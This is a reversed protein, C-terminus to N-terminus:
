REPSNLAGTISRILSRPLVKSSSVFMRNLLGDVMLVKGSLMAEIGRQACAQSDAFFIRKMRSSSMKAREFFETRTPGPCLTTVTVGTGKLESSLAESFSLVYAKSAYYGAMWPGPQFAATSAVNMIRGNKRSLMDPLLLRALETLSTMNLHLMGVLSQTDSEVFPGCIGYGANNILVDVVLGKSQINQVLREASGPVSLDSSIVHTKVGYEASLKNALRALREESRAVLILDYKQRALIVSFDAGLGASAGTILATPM